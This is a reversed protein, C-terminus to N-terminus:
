CMERVAMEDTQGREAGCREEREIEREKGRKVTWGGAVARAGVIRNEFASLDLLFIFIYIFFYEYVIDGLIL